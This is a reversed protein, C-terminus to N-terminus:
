SGEVALSNWIAGLDVSVMDTSQPLQGTLSDM